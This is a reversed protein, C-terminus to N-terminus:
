PTLLANNFSLKKLYLFSNYLIPLELLLIISTQIMAGENLLLRSLDGHMRAFYNM